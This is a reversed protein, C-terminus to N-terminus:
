VENWNEKEVEFGHKRRLREITLLHKVKTLENKSHPTGTFNLDLYWQLVEERTKLNNVHFLFSCDFVGLKDEYENLFHDFVLLENRLFKRVAELRQKGDVLVLPTKYTTMWTSCNFMIDRQGYGGRIIYEVYKTQQKNNWVHGRQFDPNLILGGVEKNKGRDTFRKINEEVHNWPVTVSYNANRTFKPVDSFRPM